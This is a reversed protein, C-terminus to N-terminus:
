GSAPYLAAFELPALEAGSSEDSEENNGLVRPISIAKLASADVPAPVRRITRNGGVGDRRMRKRRTQFTCRSVCPIANGDEGPVM